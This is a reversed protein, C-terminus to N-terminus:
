SAWGPEGKLGPPAAVERSKTGSRELLRDVLEPLDLPNRGLLLRYCDAQEILRGLLDFQRAAAGPEFVLLSHPLIEKLATEKPLPVARYERQGTVQPFLILEPVAAASVCNPFLLEPDISCKRRGPPPLFSAVIQLDPFFSITTETVDFRDPFSLVEVLDARGRLFPRDDSLSRYGGWLLALCCTTKGGGSQAPILVGRGEKEVASAHIPYLGRYKLAESLPLLFCYAAFFAPAIETPKLLHGSLRGAVPDHLLYGQEHLDFLYHGDKRYIDLSVGLAGIDFASDRESSFLLEGGRPREGRGGAARYEFTLADIPVPRDHRFKGLRNEIAELVLQLESAVRLPVGHILYNREFPLDIV